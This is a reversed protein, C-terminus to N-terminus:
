IALKKKYDSRHLLDDNINQYQCSGTQYSVFSVLCYLIDDIRVWTTTTSLRTGPTGHCWLLFSPIVSLCSHCLPTLSKPVLPSPSRPVSLVPSPFSQFSPSVPIVSLFSLSPSNLVPLNGPYDILYIMSFSFRPPV